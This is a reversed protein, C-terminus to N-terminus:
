SPWAISAPTPQLRMLLNTRANELGALVNRPSLNLLSETVTVINGTQPDKDPAQASITIAVGTVFTYGRVTTTTYQFCPVGNPNAVIHDMLLQASNLNPTSVKNMTRSLNGTMPDCDYWGFVLTGDGNLDGLLRLETGTSSPSIGEPFIGPATLLTAAPHDKTFIGTISTSTHSAVTVIEQSSGVDVLVKEGDFIDGAAPDLLVSQTNANKSVSSHLTKAPVNLLGAQTIEQTMLAMAARIGGHVGSRQETALYAKQYFSLVAFASGSVTLLTALSIMLELLSVGRNKKAFTM